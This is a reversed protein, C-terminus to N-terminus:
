CASYYRDSNSCFIIHDDDNCYSIFDLEFFMSSILPSLHYVLKIIYNVTLLSFHFNLSNLM